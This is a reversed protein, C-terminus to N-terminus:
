SQTDDDPTGQEGRLEAVHRELVPTLATEIQRETREAAAQVVPRVLKALRDREEDNEQM